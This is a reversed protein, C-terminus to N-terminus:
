KFFFLNLIAEGLVWVSTILGHTYKLYTELSSGYWENVATAPVQTFTLTYLIMGACTVTFLVNVFLEIYDDRGM